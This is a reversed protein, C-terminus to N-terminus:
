LGVYFPGPSPPHHPPGLQMTLLCPQAKPGALDLSAGGGLLHHYVIVPCSVAETGM